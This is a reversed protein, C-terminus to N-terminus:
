IEKDLLWDVANKEVSIGKDKLEESMHYLKENVRIFIAKQNYFAVKEFPWRIISPFVLNVGLELICLKRNLTGQLWKTYCKWDQLYGDEDYKEAYVNNLVLREGCSPCVGLEPQFDESLKESLVQIEVESLQQLSNECHKPCQKKELNGCPSVMREELFGVNKLIGNTCTTILYYNKGELIRSLEKLAEVAKTDKQFRSIEFESGIGVLIMESAEIKDIYEQRMFLGNRYHLFGPAGPKKM